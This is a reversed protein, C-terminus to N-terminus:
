RGADADDVVMRRDDRGDRCGDGGGVIQDEGTGASRQRLREIEDRKDVDQDAVDLEVTAGLPEGHNVRGAGGRVARRDQQQRPEPM